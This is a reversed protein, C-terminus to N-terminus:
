NCIVQLLKQTKDNKQLAGTVFTKIVAVSKEM